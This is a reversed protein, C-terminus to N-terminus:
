GFLDVSLAPLSSLDVARSGSAKGSPWRPSTCTPFSVLALVERRRRMPVSYQSELLFAKLYVIQENGSTNFGFGTEVSTLNVVAQFDPLQEPFYRYGPICRRLKLGLRVISHRTIVAVLERKGM